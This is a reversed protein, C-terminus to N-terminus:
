SDTMARGPLYPSIIARAGFRHTDRNRQEGECVLQDSEGVSNHSRRTCDLPRAFPPKPDFPGAIGNGRPCSEGAASL